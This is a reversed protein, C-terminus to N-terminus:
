AGKLSLEADPWHSLRRLLLTRARSRLQSISFPKPLYDTAGADFAEAATEPECSGTVMIIPLDATTPDGRLARCAAFGDMRPMRADMVMVDPRGAHALRVAQRGDAAVEIRFDDELCERLLEALSPDDEALLLRPRDAVLNRM